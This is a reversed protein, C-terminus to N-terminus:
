RIRDDFVKTNAKGAIAEALQARLNTNEIELVNIRDELNTAFSAPDLTENIVKYIRQSSYKNHSDDFRKKKATEYIRVCKMLELTQIRRSLEPHKIKPGALEDMIVPGSALVYGDENTFKCLADLTAKVEDFTVAPM